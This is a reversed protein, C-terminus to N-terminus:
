IESISYLSSMEKGLINLPMEAVQSKQKRYMLSLSVLGAECCVLQVFKSLIIAHYECTIRTRKKSSNTAALTNKSKTLIKTRKQRNQRKQTCKLKVHNKSCFDTKVVIIYQGNLYVYIINNTFFSGTYFSICM